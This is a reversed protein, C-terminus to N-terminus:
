SKQDFNSWTERRRASVLIYDYGGWTIKKRNFNIVSTLSIDLIDAGFLVEYELRGKETVLLWKIVNKLNWNSNISEEYFSFKNEM